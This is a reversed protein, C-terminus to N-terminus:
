KSRDEVNGFNIELEAAFTDNDNAFSWYKVFAKPFPFSRATGKLDIPNYPVLSQIVM